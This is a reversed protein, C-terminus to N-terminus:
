ADPFGFGGGGFGAADGPVLQIQETKVDKLIGGVGNDIENSEAKVEAIEYSGDGLQNPTGYTANVDVTPGGTDTADIGVIAPNSSSFQYTLTPQPNVPTGESDVVVPKTFVVTEAPRDGKYTKVFGGGRFSVKPKFTQSLASTLKAISEQLANYQVEDMEYIIRKTVEVGM